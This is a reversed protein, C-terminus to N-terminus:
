TMSAWTGNIIHVIDIQGFIFHLLVSEYHFWSTSNKINISFDTNTQNLISKILWCSDWPKRPAWDTFFQGAICSVPTWDRPQSSGRSPPLAVWELIRAQLIGHVLPAQFAVTWLTVSRWVCSFHSLMCACFCFMTFCSFELKNFFFFFLKIKSFFLSDDM